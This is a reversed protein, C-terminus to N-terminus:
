LRKYYKTVEKIVSEITQEPAIKINNTKNKLAKATTTGICFCIQNEIANKQTFSEVGSPSFFLIGDFFHITKKPSLVTEYTRIENYKINNEKFFDPLTNKRLSGSFFTFSNTLYNTKIKEALEDAYNTYEIVKFGKKELKQKTKIGVCICEKTKILQVSNNKLVSKVANKSTFICIDNLPDLQFAIKKIKIFNKDVLNLESNEFKKKQTLTLKKTSLISIM